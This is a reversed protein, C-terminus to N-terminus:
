TITFTQSCPTFAGENDTVRHTVTWTGAQRFIHSTDPAYEVNGTVDDTFTWEYRVIFGDKDSSTTQFLAGAPARKGNPFEFNFGCTPATNGDRQPFLRPEASRLEIRVFNTAAGNFDSGVVRGRVLISQNATADTRYPTTYIVTAVGNADTTVNGKGSDSSLSGINAPQGKSDTIFFNIVRGRIPQSNKDRLVGQVIAFSVGDSVLMDPTATIVLEEALGSPGFLDPVDVEHVGCGALAAALAVALLARGAGRRSRLRLTKM